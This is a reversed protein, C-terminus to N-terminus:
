WLPNAESPGAKHWAVSRCLETIVHLVEIITEPIHRSGFKVIVNNEETNIQLRGLELGLAGGRGLM